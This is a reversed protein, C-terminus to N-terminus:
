STLLYLVDIELEDPYVTPTYRKYPKGNKDLLFKEFNWHIDVCTVPDWTIDGRNNMILGTPSACTNRLFKFVPHANEGNVEIKSFLPFSATFNNAPRVFRLINRIETVSGPEQGGFQNCPFGLVVFGKSSYKRHLAELGTYTRVTLGWFSAVNVVLVVKNKYASLTVNRGDIDYASYNYLSDDTSFCKSEETFVNYIFLFGVLAQLLFLKKSGRM